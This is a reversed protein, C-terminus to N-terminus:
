DETSLDCFQAVIAVVVELFLRLRLECYVFAFQHVGHALHQQPMTRDWSKKGIENAWIKSKSKPTM